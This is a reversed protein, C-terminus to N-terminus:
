KWRGVEKFEYRTSNSSWRQKFPSHEPLMPGSPKFQRRWQQVWTPPTPHHSPAELMAWQMLQAAVGRITAQSAEPTPAAIDKYGSPERKPKPEEALAQLSISQEQQAYGVIREIHAQLSDKM